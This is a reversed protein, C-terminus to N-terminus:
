KSKKVESDGINQTTLYVFSDEYLKQDHPSLHFNKYYLVEVHSEYEGVESSFAKHEGKFTGNLLPHIHSQTSLHAHHCWM